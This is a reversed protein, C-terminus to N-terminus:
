VVLGSGVLSDFCTRAMKFTRLIRMDQALPLLSSAAAKSGLDGGIAAEIEQILRTVVSAMDSIAVSSKVRMDCAESKTFWLAECGDYFGVPSEFRTALSPLAALLSVMRQYIDGIEEQMVDGCDEDSAAIRELAAPLDEVAALFSEYVQGGAAWDRVRSTDFGGLVQKLLRYDGCLVADPAIRQLMLTHAATHEGARLLCSLHHMTAEDNAVQRDMDYRSRTVNAEDLWHEPIHLEGLLFEYDNTDDHQLSRELLARISHTRHAESSLQQLVYCAWQWLGLVELQFAWGALLRDYTLPEDFGRVKRVVFLLWALLAPMRVDGRSPSFSQPLLVNELSQTPDSYLRLLQFAPDWAGSTSADCGANWEPLPQAVSGDGGGGSSNAATFARQYRVVADVVDDAPSGSYWLSLGFARKWDLGAAVRDPAGSLLEYVRKYDHSADMRDLQARVLEQVQRDNGGGGVAGAGCQAVLTALRYDRHSTAALCAAEIRHGTLLAFVSAAAPSSSSNAGADLLDHQVSDYVASMLWRTVGQRRKVARVRPPQDSSEDFLLSALDLVAKDSDPLQALSGIVDGINAPRTRYAKVTELHLARNEELSKDASHVHRAISDVVITQQMGGGQLYVFQGQPGFAVRFSRAMMLGADARMGSRGYALSRAYPQSHEVSSPDSARLYKGPPPLDLAAVSSAVSNDATDSYASSSDITPAFGRRVPFQNSLSHFPRKRKPGSAAPFSFPIAPSRSQIRTANNSQITADPQAAASTTSFLSARMVPARRLSEARRAGAFLQKPPGSVLHHQQQQPPAMDEEDAGDESPDDLGYRSFHEVKFIWAGNVFDIFETEAIRRLRRIHKRVRPDDMHAIPAGTARDIPWCDHLSIVAPVNLGQGRPPKNSEDPYVTCVRDDFLVVGGAIASLSGVTTLDVAKNFSVQGVGNRGVTFNRVTRLQQTSMARLEALSPQMWYEGYGDEDAAPETAVDSADDVEEEDVLAHTPAAPKAAWADSARPISPPPQEKPAPTPAVVSSAFSPRRTIVLRKVNAHPLQMDASLFGDRGFIGVTTGTRSRAAPTASVAPAPARMRSVTSPAAFGRARLRSSIATSVAPSAAVALSLGRKKREVEKDAISDAATTRLPTATLHSSAGGTAARNALNATNFLANAGYPQRDIQTTFLGQQQQQQQQQPQLSAAALNMQPQQQQAPQQVGFLGGGASSGFIGGTGAATAGGIATSAAPKTGFLGGGFGTNSSGSANFGTGTSGFLGGGTSGAANTGFLGGGGTAGPAAVTSAAPATSGFLSSGGGIGMGTGAAPKSAFLGGGGMTTATGGSTGFLGGGATNATGTSTAGFLGGGGGTSAAGTNTAGFLGGGTAGGSANTAGFLSSGTAPASTATGFLRDGGGGGTNAGSATTTGFLGGGGTNTTGFGTTPATSTAGFGTTAAPKSGFLGGSPNGTGFPGGASTTNTAGFGSTPATSTAGFGTAAPKTGFLGSGTSAGGTNSSGFLGTNTSTGGFGFGGGGSSGAATNGGGFGGTTGTQGFAGGGGTGGTSAGFGTSLGFGTTGATSTTPQSTMTSGFAGGTTTSGFASPKAGFGTTASSAGFGTSAPTQGFLGTSAAPATNGFSSTGSGFAGTGTSTGVGMGGFAPKAGFGTTGTTSAQGFGGIGSGSAFGGGSAGFGTAPKSPTAVAGFAGGGGLGSTTAGFAGSGAGSTAPQGFISVGSDAKKRGAQYDQVRLEEPSADSYASMFSIHNYIDKRGAPGRETYPEFPVRASGTAQQQQQTPAGFAGTSASGFAGTTATNSSGGFLSSTAGPASTASGFAGGTSSSTGFRGFAGGTGTGGSSSAQGFGGFGSSTNGFGGSGTSNTNGFGGSGFMILEYSLMSSLQRLQQAIGNPALQVGPENNLFKTMAKAASSEKVDKNKEERIVLPRQTASM